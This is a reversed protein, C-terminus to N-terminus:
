TKNQKRTCASFPLTQHRIDLPLSNWVRSAAVTFSVKEYPNVLSIMGVQLSMTRLLGENWALIAQEYLFAIAEAEVTHGTIVKEGPLEGRKRFVAIKLHDKLILISTQNAVTSCRMLEGPKQTHTRTRPPPPFPVNQQPITRGWGVSTVYWFCDSMDSVTQGCLGLLNTVLRISLCDSFHCSALWSSDCICCQKPLKWLM